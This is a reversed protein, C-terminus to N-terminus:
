VAGTVRGSDVDDPAPLDGRLIRGPIVASLDPTYTLAGPSAGPSLRAVSRGEGM